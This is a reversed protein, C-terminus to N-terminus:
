LARLDMKSSLIMARLLTIGVSCIIDTLKSQEGPWGIEGVIAV